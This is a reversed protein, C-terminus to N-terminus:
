KGTGTEGTILVTSDTAAVKILRSLVAQLAPSTGVIEEFMSVQDVEDRLALNEKYLQDRLTKDEAFAKEPATRARVQRTVEITTTGVFEVVKGGENVVPHGISHQYRITGDPLVIRYEAEYITKEVVCTEFLDRVRNRDEPHICSFWFEATPLIRRRGPHSM